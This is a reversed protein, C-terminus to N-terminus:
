AGGRPQAAHLHLLPHSLYLFPVVALSLLAVTVDLKLLIAFMVVLTAVSTVLPFGGILLNEIAYADVDVRYVADGTNTKVHHSCGSRRCTSFCGTACTTSWASARYRGPDPHQLGVHDPQAVQLVVGAVVLTVLLVLPNGEHITQLWAAFPQPMPQGVLVYDIVVKLLWTRARRTRSRRAAARGVLTMRGRYPRLFSLTWRRALRATTDNM